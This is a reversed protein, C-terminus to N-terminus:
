NGDNEDELYFDDIDRIVEDDGRIASFDSIHGVQLIGCVDIRLMGTQVDIDNIPWWWCSGNESGYLQGLSNILAMNLLDGAQQKLENNSKM